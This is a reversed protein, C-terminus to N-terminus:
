PMKINGLNRMDFYKQKNLKTHKQLKLKETKIVREIYTVSGM